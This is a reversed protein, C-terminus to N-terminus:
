NVRLVAVPRHATQLGGPIAKIGNAAPFVVVVSGDSTGAEMGQHPSNSSAPYPSSAAVELGAIASAILVIVFLSSTFNM